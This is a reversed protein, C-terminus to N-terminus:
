NVCLRRAATCAYATGGSSATAIFQLGLIKIASAASSDSIQGATAHSYVAVDKASAAAATVKFNSIDDERLFFPGVAVWGYDGDAFAYQALGVTAVPSTALATTLKTAKGDDGIIVADYQAIAGNAQTYLWTAGKTEYTQGIAALRSTSDSAILNAWGKSSM